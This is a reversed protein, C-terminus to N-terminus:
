GENFKNIYMNLIQNKEREEREYDPEIGLLREIDAETAAESRAQAEEFRSWLWDYLRMWEEPTRRLVQQTFEEFRSIREEMQLLRRKLEANELVVAELAPAFQRKVADIDIRDGFILVGSVGDKYARALDIESYKRYVETLYGEHGMIAERIDVEAKHHTRFFKRLSQPHLLYRGTTKDRQDLGAKRLATKWISRATFDSFPFVRDDLQKEGSSALYLKRLGINRDKSSRIYDERVKLWAIMADKAEDSIFAIRRNGTKTYEARLRIIPPDRELEIDSLRLQLAEGIRMGSSVLTLYLAKGQIPM